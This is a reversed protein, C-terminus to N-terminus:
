TLLAIHSTLLIQYFSRPAGWQLIHYKKHYKWRFSSSRMNTPMHFSNLGSKWSFLWRQSPCFVFVCLCRYDWRVKGRREAQSIGSQFCRDNSFPHASMCSWRIGWGAALLLFLYFIYLKNQYEAILQFNVLWWPVSSLQCKPSTACSLLSM